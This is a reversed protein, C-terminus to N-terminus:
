WGLWWKWLEPMMVWVKKSALGVMLMTTGRGHVTPWMDVKHIRLLPPPGPSPHARLGTPV